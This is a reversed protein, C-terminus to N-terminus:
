DQRVVDIRQTGNDGRPGILQSFLSSLKLGAVRQDVLQLRLKRNEFPCPEARRGLLHAVGDFMPSEESFHLPM